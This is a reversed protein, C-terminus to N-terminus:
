FNEWEDNAPKRCTFYSTVGKLFLPIIFDDSPFSIAHMLDTQNETLSKPIEEVRVDDVRMQMPCLLLNDVEKIYIAQHMVLYIVEGTEPDDYAIAASVIPVHEMKGLAETFPSVLM